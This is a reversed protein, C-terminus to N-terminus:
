LRKAPGNASCLSTESGTEKGFLRQEALIYCIREDSTLARSKPSERKLLRVPNKKVLFTEREKVRRSHRGNPQLLNDSDAIIQSTGKKLRGHNSKGPAEVGIDETGCSPHADIKM